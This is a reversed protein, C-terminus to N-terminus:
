GRDELDVELALADDDLRADRVEVDGARDRRVAEEVRGVGGALLDARDAAVDGLVGAARVAELVPEGDVVDRARREDQGVALQEHEAALRDVGVVAGVQEPDDDARLPREPDRDLHRQPDHALRLDHM